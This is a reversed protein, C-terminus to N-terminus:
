RTMNEINSYIEDLDYENDIPKQYETDLIVYGCYKIQMEAVDIDYDTWECEKTLPKLIKWEASTILFYTLGYSTTYTKEFM